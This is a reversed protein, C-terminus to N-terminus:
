AAKKKKEAPKLNKEKFDRMLKLMQAEAAKSPTFMNSNEDRPDCLLILDREPDYACLLRMGREHEWWMPSVLAMRQGTESAIVIQDHYPVIKESGLAWVPTNLANMKRRLEENRRSLRGNNDTLRANEAKLEENRAKSADLRKKMSKPDLERLQKLEVTASAHETELKRHRSALEDYGRAVRDSIETLRVIEANAIKVSENHKELLAKRDNHVHLLLIEKEVLEARLRALEAELAENDAVLRNFDASDQNHAEIVLDLAERLTNLPHKPENM